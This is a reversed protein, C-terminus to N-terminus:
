SRLGKRLRPVAYVFGAGILIGLLFIVITKKNTAVNVSSTAMPMHLGKCVNEWHARAEALPVEPKGLQRNVMNHLQVSWAFLSEKGQLHGEVPLHALNEQLHRACSACPLIFPLQQFFMSYANKYASDMDDPAGLSILHIAGWM